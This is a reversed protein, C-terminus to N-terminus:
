SRITPVTDSIAINLTAPFSPTLRDPRTAVEATKVATMLARHLMEVALQDVVSLMTIPGTHRRTGTLGSSRTLAMMRHGAAM